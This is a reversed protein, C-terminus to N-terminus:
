PARWTFASALQPLPPGIAHLTASLSYAFLGRSARSPLQQRRWALVWGASFLGYKLAPKGARANYVIARAKSLKPKSTAEM